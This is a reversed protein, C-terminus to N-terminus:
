AGVHPKLFISEGQKAFTWTGRIYGDVIHFHDDAQLLLLLDVTGSM